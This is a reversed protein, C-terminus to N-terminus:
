IKQFLFEFEAMSLGENSTKKGLKILEQRYLEAKRMFEKLINIDSTKTRIDHNQNAPIEPNLSLTLSPFESSKSTGNQPDFKIRHWHQLTRNDNDLWIDVPLGTVITSKKAMENLVESEIKPKSIIGGEYLAQRLRAVAPNVAEAPPNVPVDDPKLGALAKRIGDTIKQDFLLSIITNMEGGDIKASAEAKVKADFGTLEAKIETAGKFFRILALPM